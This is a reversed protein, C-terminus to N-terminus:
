LAESFKDYWVTAEWDDLHEPCGDRIAEDLFVVMSAEPDEREAYNDLVQTVVQFLSVDDNLDNCAAQQLDSLGSGGCAALLGLAMALTLGRM